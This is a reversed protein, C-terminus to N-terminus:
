SLQHRSMKNYLARRSIGLIEAAHKKNGRVSSLTRQIVEKEIAGLTRGLPFGGLQDDGAGFRVVATIRQPLLDSTLEKGEAILVASQIVNKLERVNGPWPYRGLIRQAEPAVAHVKKGFAAAFKAIFYETLMPVAGHRERLPPVVIHFVNLRYFLDERFRQQTVHKELDENAAAIIRVDAPINRTGGVRRFSKEELVRLLSVQTKADMTAIEDLFVTGGHAQEFIGPRSDQAGTFAGKEHGFIESAILEPAIAGTNIAIYPKDKRRSCRHIAAALLDKGTGTEGTILVPMDVAAADRARRIVQQMALSSAVIGEFEIAGM